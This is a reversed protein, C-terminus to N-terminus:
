PEFTMMYSLDGNIDFAFPSDLSGDNNTDWVIWITYVSGDNSCSATIASQADSAGAVNTATGASSIARQTQAAITQAVPDSDVGAPFLANLVQGSQEASQRALNAANTANGALSEAEAQQALTEAQAAQAQIDPTTGPQTAALNVVQSAISTATMSAFGTGGDAPTEDRCVLGLGGPLNNQILQNWEWIDNRAMEQATCGSATYCRSVQTFGSSILSYFNGDVGEPNARMRDAINIALSVAKHQSFAQHNIRLSTAQLGAIGLLGVTLIFLTVLNEILSFGAMASLSRNAGDPM